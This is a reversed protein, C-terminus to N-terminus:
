NTLPRTEMRRKSHILKDIFWEEIHHHVRILVAAIGVFILLEYIPTHNTLDEVYPHLLLTLYEFFILLSIVGLFRIVRAHVKQRSVLVTFLFLAPIFMGIFLIQLQQLREKKAKRKQDALEIQRFQENSSIVQLQRVRDSSNMSDRLQQSLALYTYASDMHGLGKYYVDLFEAAKLQWRVFGDRRGIFLMRQAFYKASDKRNLSDYLNALGWSTECVLDDNHAEELYVLAGKFQNRAQELKNTQQYVEGIGVMSTGMYNGDQQAAAINFSRQFYIFASDPKHIRNYLDGIDLAIAYQLVYVYKSDVGQINKMLSDARYYYDLAKDYEEQYTYVSGINLLVSTMNQPNNRKEELQLQRLYFAMASPYNGIQNYATALKGLSKSEGELYKIRQALILAQAALARSTDPNFSNYASALNWLLTVRTTDQKEKALLANLSDIIRNQASAFSYCLTIIFFLGHRKM